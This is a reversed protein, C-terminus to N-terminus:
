GNKWFNLLKLSNYIDENIIKNKNKDSKVLSGEIIKHLEGSKDFNKVMAVQKINDFDHEFDDIELFNYIDKFKNNPDSIWEDYDLLLFQESLLQKNEFLEKIINFWLMTVNKENLFFQIRDNINEPIKNNNLNNKKNKQYLKEWSIIIDEINRLCIIFKVRNNFKINLNGLLNLWQRNKDIIINKDTHQKFFDDSINKIETENLNIEKLLKKMLNFFYNSSESYINPNQNLINVLLTSGSRPLGSIFFYQKNM